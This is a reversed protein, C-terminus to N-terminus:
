LPDELSPRFPFRPAARLKSAQWGALANSVNPNTEGCTSALEYVAETRWQAAGVSGASGTYEGTRDSNSAVGGIEDWGGRLGALVM